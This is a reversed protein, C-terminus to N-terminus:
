WKYPNVNNTNKSCSTLVKSQNMVTNSITLTYEGKTAALDLFTMGLLIFVSSSFASLTEKKLKTFTLYHFSPQLALNKTTTKKKQSPHACSQKTMTLTVLEEAANDIALLVKAVSCLTRYRM